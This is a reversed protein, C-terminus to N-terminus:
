RPCWRAVHGPTGPPSVAPDRRQVSVHPVSAACAAAFAEDEYELALVVPYSEAFAACEDFVACDEVVAFDFGLRRDLLEAANKQAVALGAAHARETLLRAMAAADSADLLGGSRTWSDINDPEVADFGAAACGDIWPGVVDLVAGRRDATTIDLLYEGPWDPDEVLRGDGARLLLGEPVDTAGPQTQFANVYCISYRRPDASDTRDRVVIGVDDVPEHGGGLQYDFPVDAPPPTTSAPGGCASLALWLLAHVGWGSVPGCRLRCPRRPM